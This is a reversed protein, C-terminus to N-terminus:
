ETPTVDIDGPHVPGPCRHLTYTLFSRVPRRPSTDFRRRSARSKRNKWLNKPWKRIYVPLSRKLHRILSIKIDMGGWTDVGEDGLSIIKQRQTQIFEVSSKSSRNWHQSSADITYVSYARPMRLHWEYVCLFVCVCICFCVYICVCDCVCVCVWMSEYVFVCVCFESVIKKDIIDGVGGPHQSANRFGSRFAFICACLYQVFIYACLYKLLYQCIRTHSLPPFMKIYKKNLYPSRSDYLYSWSEKSAPRSQRENQRQRFFPRRLFAMLIRIYM